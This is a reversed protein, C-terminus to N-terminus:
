NAFWLKSKGRIQTNELYKLPGNEGLCAYISSYVDLNSFTKFLNKKSLVDNDNNDKKQILSKSGTSKM